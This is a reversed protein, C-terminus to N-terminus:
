RRHKKGEYTHRLIQDLADMGDLTRAYAQAYRGSASLARAEEWAADGKAFSQRAAEDLENNTMFRRTHTVRDSVADFYGDLAKRMASTEEGEFAVRVTDAMLRRVERVETYAAMYNDNAAKARISAWLAEGETWRGQAEPTLTLRGADVETRLVRAIERIAHAEAKVNLGVEQRVELEVSPEPTGAFAPSATLLFALTAIMKNM